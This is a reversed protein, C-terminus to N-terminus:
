KKAIERKRRFDASEWIRTWLDWVEKPCWIPRKGGKRIIAMTGKYRDKLKNIFGKKMTDDSHKSSDWVCRKRFEEFYKDLIATRIMGANYVVPQPYEQFISTIVLAVHNDIIMNDVSLVVIFKDNADKPADSRINRRPGYHRPTTTSGSAVNSGGTSLHSQSPGTPLTLPGSLSTPPTAPEQTSSPSTQHMSSPTSSPSSEQVHSPSSEQVLSPSTAWALSSSSLMRLNKLYPPIICRMFRRIPQKGKNRDNPTRKDGAGDQGGDSAM